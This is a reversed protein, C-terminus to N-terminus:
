PEIILYPKIKALLKDGIGKVDLLQEVTKFRGGLQKRYVIIANAKSEGIGPLTTLQEVTAKNLNLIGITIAAKADSTSKPLSENNGYVEPNSPDKEKRIAENGIQISPEIALQEGTLPPKVGSKNTPTQTQQGDKVQGAAIGQQKNQKAESQQALLKLM